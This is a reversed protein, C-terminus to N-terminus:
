SSFKGWKSKTVGTSNTKDELVMKDTKRKRKIAKPVEEFLEEESEEVEAAKPQPVFRAWRSTKAEVEQGVEQGVEEGDEGWVQWGQDQEEQERDEIAVLLRKEKEGEVEMRQMNFQQVVKRCEVGTGRSM